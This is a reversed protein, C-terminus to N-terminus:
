YPRTPESIHILSLGLEAVARDIGRQASDFFSKDGLAGNVFHLVKLPEGAPAAADGAPAAAEGGAPVAPAAPAACATVVLVVLVLLSLLFPLKRQM